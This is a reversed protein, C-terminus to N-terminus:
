GYFCLYATAQEVKLQFKQNADINFETGAPYSVYDDSGPLKVILEGSTVVMREKESTGFEYEGIAMAGVTARGESNDFGISTVKGDFYENVHFM